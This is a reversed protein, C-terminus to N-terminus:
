LSEAGYTFEVQHTDMNCKKNIRRTQVLKIQRGALINKALEYAKPSSLHTWGSTKHLPGNNEHSQSVILCYHQTRLTIFKWGCNENRIWELEVKGPTKVGEEALFQNREANFSVTRSPHIAEVLTNANGLAFVLNDINSYLLRFQSPQIHRQLFNLVQMLRLKGFEIICLFMVVASNSVKRHTSGKPWTHTELLIYSAKGVDATYNVDFHHRFYQYRSPPRDVLRYTTKNTQSTHTGFFGCSLNTMRKYFSALVVDKSSSRLQILDNYIQNFIPETKYFLAWELDLLLVTDFTKKLWEYYDRTLVISGFNSLSHKTYKDPRPHYVILPGDPHFLEEPLNAVKITAKAIFTFDKSPSNNMLSELKKPNLTKGLSEIVRYGEMTKALNPTNYFHYELASPYYGDMHCDYIIKYKARRIFVDSRPQKGKMMCNNNTNIANIWEMTAKDRLQTKKRVQQHTQGKVYNELQDCNGPCGHGDMQYFLFQGKETVVV